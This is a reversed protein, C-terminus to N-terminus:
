RVGVIRSVEAYFRAADPLMAFAARAVEEPDPEEEEALMYTDTAGLALIFPFPEESPHERWARRYEEAMRLFEELDEEGLAEGRVEGWERMIEQLQDVGAEDSGLREDLVILVLGADLNLANGLEEPAEGDRAYVEGEAIAELRQDLLHALSEVQDPYLPEVAAGGAPEDEEGGRMRVPVEVGDETRGGFWSGVAEAAKHLFGTDM